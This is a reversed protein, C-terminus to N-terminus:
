PWHLLSPPAEPGGVPWCHPLPLVTQSGSWIQLFPSQRSAQKLTEQGVPDLQMLTPIKEVGPMRDVIQYGTRNTNM